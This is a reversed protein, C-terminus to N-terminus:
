GGSPAVSSRYWVTGTVTQSGVEIGSEGDWADGIWETRSSLEETASPHLTRVWPAVDGARLQWWPHDGAMAAVIEKGTPTRQM